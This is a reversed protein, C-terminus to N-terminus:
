SPLRRACRHAQKIWQAARIRLEPSRSCDELNLPLGTIPCRGPAAALARVLSLREFTHGHPSTVPDIFIKGDLACSLDDPAGLMLSRLDFTQSREDPNGELRCSGAFNEEALPPAISESSSLISQVAELSNVSGNLADLWMSSVEAHLPVCSSLLEAMAASQVDSPLGRMVSFLLNSKSPTQRCNIVIACLAALSEQDRTGDGLHVELFASCEDADMPVKYALAACDLYFRTSERRSHLSCPVSSLSSWLRRRCAFVQMTLTHKVHAAADFQVFVAEVSHACALWQEWNTDTVVFDEILVSLLNALLPLWCRSRCDSSAEQLLTDILGCELIASSLLVRHHTLRVLQPPTARSRWTRELPLDVSDKQFVIAPSSLQLAAQIVTVKLSSFGEPVLLGVHQLRGQHLSLMGSLVAYAWLPDSAAWTWFLESTLQGQGIIQTLLNLIWACTNQLAHRLRAEEWSAEGAELGATRCLGGFIYISLEDCESLLPELYATAVFPDGLFRMVSDCLMNSVAALSFAIAEALECPLGLPVDLRQRVDETGELTSIISVLSLCNSSMQCVSQILFEAQESCFPVSLVLEGQSAVMRLVPKREDPVHDELLPLCRLVGHVACCALDYNAMM